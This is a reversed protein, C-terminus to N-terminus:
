AAVTALIDDDGGHVLRTAHRATRYLYHEIVEPFDTLSKEHQPATIKGPTKTKEERTPSLRRGHKKKPKTVHLSLTKNTQLRRIPSHSKSSTELSITKHRPTQQRNDLAHPSGSRPRIERHFITTQPIEQSFRTPKSQEM